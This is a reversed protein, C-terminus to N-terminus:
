GHAAAKKRPAREGLLASMTTKLAEAFVPLAEIALRQHGGEIRSISAESMEVLEGLAAMSLGLEKRRKAIREGMETPTTM